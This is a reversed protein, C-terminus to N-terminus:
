SVRKRFLSQTYLTDRVLANRRCLSESKKRSVSPLNSIIEFSVVFTGEGQKVKEAEHPIFHSMWKM